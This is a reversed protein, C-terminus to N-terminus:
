IQINFTFTNIKSHGHTTNPSVYVLETVEKSHYRLHEHIREVDKNTGELTVKVQGMTLRRWFIAVSDDEQVTPM